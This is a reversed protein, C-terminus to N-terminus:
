AAEYRLAVAHAKFADCSILKLRRMSPVDKFLPLGQGLIVPNVVLGYIDVLGQRVFDQAIRAGGVMATSIPLVSLQSIWPSAWTYEQPTSVVGSAQSVSKLRFQAQTLASEAAPFDGARMARDVHILLQEIERNAPADPHRLLDATLGRKRMEAVDPLWVLRFYAFPDLLRQYERVTDYYRVTLSVDESLDSPPIQTRLNQLFRDELVTFPLGFHKRLAADIAASQGQGRIPHIDRYFTNFADWGWTKVMYDILAAGELYGTEHQETYFNDALTDLPIYWGLALLASAELSVPETKFHGGSLYVALGELFLTPRLNGGLQGDVWHVMEHHLVIAFDGGAYDGDTYTVEIESGTFGGQGLVRPLFTIPIPANLRANFEAEVSQAQQDALAKLRDLDRGAATGTLYNLVCCATHVSAWHSGPEPPPLGSSPNLQVPQTWAIQDQPLSFTLTHDGPPLGHTDWAWLFTAIASGPDPGPGFKAPSLQIGQPADIQAQIQQGSLNLPHSSRGSPSYIVEISIQDGIFLGGDPHFRVSFGAPIQGQPLPTPLPATTLLPLLPVPSYFLGQFAFWLILFLLIRYRM